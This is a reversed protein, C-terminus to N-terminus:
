LEAKVLAPRGDIVPQPTSVACAPDFFFGNTNAISSLTLYLRVLFLPPLM